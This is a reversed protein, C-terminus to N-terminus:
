MCSKCTGCDRQVWHLQGQTDPNCVSIDNVSTLTDGPDALLDLLCLVAADQPWISRALVPQMSCVHGCLCAKVGQSDSAKATEKQDFFGKTAPKEEAEAASDAKAPTEAKSTAEAKAPSDAKSPSDAEPARDGAPADTEPQAPKFSDM